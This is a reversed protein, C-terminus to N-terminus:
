TSLPYSFRDQHSLRVYNCITCIILLMFRYLFIRAITVVNIVAGNKMSFLSRAALSNSVDVSNYMHVVPIFKIVINLHLYM